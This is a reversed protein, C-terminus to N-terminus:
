ITTINQTQVALACVVSLTFVLLLPPTVRLMVRWIGLILRTWTGSSQGSPLTHLLNARLHTIGKPYRLLTQETYEKNEYSSITDNTNLIKFSVFITKAKVNQLMKQINMIM